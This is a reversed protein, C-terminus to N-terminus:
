LLNPEVSISFPKFTYYFHLLYLDFYICYTIYWFKPELPRWLHFFPGSYFNKLIRWFYKQSKEESGYWKKHTKSRLISIRQIKQRFQDGPRYIPLIPWFRLNKSNRYKLKPIFKGGLFQDVLPLCETLQSELTEIFGMRGIEM